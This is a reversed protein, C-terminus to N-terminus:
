GERRLADLRAFLDGRPLQTLDGAHEGVLRDRLDNPLAERLRPLMQAPAILYLGSAEGRRLADTLERGILETLDHPDHATEARVSGQFEMQRDKDTRGAIRAGPDDWDRVADYGREGIRQVYAQGRSANVVVYWRKGGGDAPSRNTERQEAM